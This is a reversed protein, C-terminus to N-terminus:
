RFFSIILRPFIWFLAKIVGWSKSEYMALCHEKITSRYNSSIGGLYFKGIVHDIKKLKNERNLMQLFKTDAAIKYKEDYFGYLKHAKLNIISGASHGHVYRINNKRDSFKVKGMVALVNENCEKLLLKHGGPLLEDDASLPIYYNGRVYRIGKNLANYLGSDEESIWLSIYKDYAKIIEVTRDESRGDIIIHEINRDNQAIVSKICREINKEGNKVVTIISLTENSLYKKEKIRKGGYLIMSPIFKM